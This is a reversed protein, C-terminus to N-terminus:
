STLSGTIASHDLHEGPRDTPSLFRLIGCWSDMPEDESVLANDADPPYYHLLRAKTTSSHRVVHQLYGPKYGEVHVAASTLISVRSGHVM